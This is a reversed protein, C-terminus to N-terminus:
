LKESPIRGSGGTYLEDEESPQHTRRASSELGPWRQRPLHLSLDIPAM